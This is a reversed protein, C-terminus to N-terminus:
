RQILEWGQNVGTVAQEKNRQTVNDCPGEPEVEEEEEEEEKERQLLPELSWQSALWLAATFSNTQIYFYYNCNVFREAGSSRM